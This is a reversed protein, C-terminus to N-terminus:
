GERTNRGGLNGKPVGGKVRYEEGPENKDFLSDKANPTNLTNTRADEGKEDGGGQRFDTKGAM